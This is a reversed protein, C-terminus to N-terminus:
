ALPQNLETRWDAPNPSSEPGTTYCEWLDEATPLSQEAVRTKLEGWAAGLGEYGGSYIARIVTRAPLESPLVRGAPQVPRSVVIGAEFDFFEPDMRFHHTFFPGAPAIGQAGLTAMLEGFAPGMVTQIERRPVKLRIVATPTTTTRIQEPASLM